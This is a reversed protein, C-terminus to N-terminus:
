HCGTWDRTWDLGTWHNYVALYHELYTVGNQKVVWQLADAVANFIKPASRLGFPLTYQISMTSSKGNLALYYATM